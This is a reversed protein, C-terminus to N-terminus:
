YCNWELKEWSPVLWFCTMFLNGKTRTSLTHTKGRCGNVGELLKQVWKNKQFFECDCWRKGSANIRCSVIMDDLLGALGASGRIKPTGKGLPPTYLSCITQLVVVMIAGPPPQHIHSYFLIYVLSSFVSSSSLLPRPRSGPKRCSFEM